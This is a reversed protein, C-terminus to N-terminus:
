SRVAKGAEPFVAVADIRCRDMIANIVEQYDAKIDSVLDPLMEEIARLEEYVLRGSLPRDRLAVAQLDRLLDRLTRVADATRPPLDDIM